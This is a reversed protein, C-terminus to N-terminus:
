DFEPLDDLSQQVASRDAQWEFYEPSDKRSPKRVDLIALEKTLELRRQARATQTPYPEACHPCEIAKKSVFEGCAGCAETGPGGKRQDCGLVFVVLALLIWKM